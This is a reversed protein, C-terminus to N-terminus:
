ITCEIKPQTYNIMSCSKNNGTFDIQAYTNKQLSISETIFTFKSGFFNHEVQNEYILASNPVPISYM